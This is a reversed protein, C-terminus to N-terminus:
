SGDGIQGKIAGGEIGRRGIPMRDAAAKGAARGEHHYGHPGRIASAYKRKQGFKHDIYVASARAEIFRQDIRTIFGSLWSERFGFARGPDGEQVCQRKYATTEAKAMDYAAYVLIVYVYEAVTAHAKTGVFWITDSNKQILFSCLHAGAVVRALTEQWAIRKNAPQYRKSNPDDGPRVHQKWDVRKEIIPDNDKTRAYDLDSPHLEYEILMRNIAGAFAEAAADNGLKAEGDRSKQMKVLRDIIKQRHDTRRNGIATQMELEFAQFQVSHNLHRLHALEHAATKWVNEAARPESDWVGNELGRMVLRITGSASCDGLPSQRYEPNPYGEV